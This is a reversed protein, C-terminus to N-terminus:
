AVGTKVFFPDGEDCWSACGGDFARIVPMWLKGDELLVRDDAVQMMEGTRENQILTGIPALVDLSIYRANPHLKTLNRATM